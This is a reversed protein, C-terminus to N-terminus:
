PYHGRWQCGHHGKSAFICNTLWMPYCPRIISPSVETLETPMASLDPCGGSTTADAVWLSYETNPELGKLEGTFNMKCQNKYEQMVISSGDKFAVEAEKLEDM